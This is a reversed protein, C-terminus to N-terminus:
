MRARAYRPLSTNVRPNRNLDDAISGDIKKQLDTLLVNRIKAFNNTIISPHIDMALQAAFGRAFHNPFRGDISLAKTYRIFVDEIDTYILTGLDDYAEEFPNREDEYTEELKMQAQVGLKQVIVCDDPCRYSFGWSGDNPCKEVLALGKVETAFRFPHRELLHILSSSLNRRLIKAQNSTDGGADLDSVTLSVGLYGLALNGIETKNLM